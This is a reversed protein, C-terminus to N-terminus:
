LTFTRMVFLEEVRNIYITKEMAVTINGNDARTFIFKSTNIEKSTVDRKVFKGRSRAISLM